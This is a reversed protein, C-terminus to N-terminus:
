NGLDRSQLEGVIKELRDRSYELNHIDEDADWLLFGAYMLFAVRLVLWVLFKLEPWEFLSGVDKGMTVVVGAASFWCLAAIKRRMFKPELNIKM